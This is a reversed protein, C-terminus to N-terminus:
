EKAEHLSFRKKNIYYELFLPEAGDKDFRYTGYSTISFKLEGFLSVTKSELFNPINDADYKSIKVEGEIAQYYDLGWDSVLNLTFDYPIPYYGNMAIKHTHELLQDFHQITINMETPYKQHQINGHLVTTKYTIKLEGAEVLDFTLFNYNPEYHYNEVGEVAILEKIGGALRVFYDKELQYNEILIRDGSECNMNINPLQTTPSYYVIYYANVPSVKYTKEEDEFMVVADPSCPQPSDKLDLTIIPEAFITEQNKTNIFIKNIKKDDKNTSTNFELIDKLSTFRQVSVDDEKISRKDEFYLIGKEYYYDFLTINHLEEIVEEVSKDKIEYDFLFLIDTLNTYNLTTNVLLKSLLVKLSSAQILENKNGSYKYSYEVTKSKCYVKINNNLLYEISDVVYFDSVIEEDDLQYKVEIREVLDSVIASDFYVDNVTFTFTNFLKTEEVELVGDDDADVIKNDIKIKKDLHNTFYISFKINM